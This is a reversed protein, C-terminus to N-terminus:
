CSTEPFEATFITETATSAVRIEGGHARAIQQSIYLGLGLGKQNPQVEGRHFATFLLPM